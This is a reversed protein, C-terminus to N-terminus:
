ANLVEAVIFPAEVIQVPRIVWRRLKAVEKQDERTLERTPCSRLKQQESTLLVVNSFNYM